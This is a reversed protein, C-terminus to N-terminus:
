LKHHYSSLHEKSVGGLRTSFGSIVDSYEDFIKYKIVPVYEEKKYLAVYTTRDDSDYSINNIYKINKELNAFITDKNIGLDFKERM